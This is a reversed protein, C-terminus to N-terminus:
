IICYKDILTLIKITLILLEIIYCEAHNQVKQMKKMIVINVILM